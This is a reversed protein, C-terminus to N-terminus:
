PASTRRRCRRQCGSGGRKDTERSPTWFAKFEWARRHNSRSASEQRMKSFPGPSFHSEPGPARRKPNGNTLSSEHDAEVGEGALNEAGGVITADLAVLWPDVRDVSEFGLEVGQAVILESGLGRFEAAADGVTGLEVVKENGGECGDALRRAAREALTMKVYLKDAPHHQVFAGDGLHLGALALRKDRREGDIEVGQAAFADVDDGHVVIQGAAVGLPHTLDVIEEAQRDADDHVAEVVVLAALGVLGVDGVAGVVFVAEVIQAVVHLMLQRRHHLATVVERDDVLDFEIRMSSARVGNIM